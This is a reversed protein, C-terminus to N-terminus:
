WIGPILRWRVRARYEDYGASKALLREEALARGVDCSCVFVVVLANRVSLNQVFYGLLLLLYSAYIPHRVVAYTGRRKLGRDAPAFGFSRGLSLFSALCIALGVLQLVLGATIGWHPHAGYPRLLVGGFTGGFALLWDGSRESVVAAPRRLLYAVVVWLQAAFFGAGALSHTSEYHRWGAWAFLAAGGAGVMNALM